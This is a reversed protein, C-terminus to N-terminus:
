TPPTASSRSASTTTFPRFVPTHPRHGDSVGAIELEDPHAALAELQDLGRRGLGAICIRTPVLRPEALDRRPDGLARPRALARRGESLAALVGGERVRLTARPGPLPTAPSSTRRWGTSASRRSRRACSSSSRRACTARATSAPSAGYGLFASQFPGRVIESINLFGVIAGDEGRRALFFAANHPARRARPLGRLRCADAAHPDLAPPYGPERADRRPFRRPRGRVAPPDGSPAGASELAVEALRRDDSSARPSGTRAEPDREHLGHPTDLIFHGARPFVKITPPTPLAQLIEVSQPTYVTKDERGFLWLTPISLRALDPRPDFGSPERAQLQKGIAAETPPARCGKSTIGAYLGQEGVSM